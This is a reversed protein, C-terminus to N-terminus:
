RHTTGGEMPYLEKPTSFENWIFSRIFYPTLKRVIRITGAKRQRRLSFVYQPRSFVTFHFHNSCLRRIVEADEMHAIHHDFGHVAEWATKKMGMCAGVAYPRGLLTFLYLLYNQVSLYIRDVMRISDPTAFCTFADVESSSIQNRLQSLFNKSIRSDADLFVLWEGRALSAGLNRQISVNKKTSIASSFREHTRSFKQIIRLTLDESQGDVVICEYSPDSQRSIDELLHPM